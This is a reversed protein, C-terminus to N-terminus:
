SNQQMNMIYTNREVDSFDIYEWASWIIYFRYIDYNGINHLLAESGCNGELDCKNLFTFKNKLCKDFKEKLLDSAEGINKYNEFTELFDECKYCTNRPGYLLVSQKEPNLFTHFGGYDTWDKVVETIDSDFNYRNVVRKKRFCEDRKRCEEDCFDNLLESPSLQKYKKAM